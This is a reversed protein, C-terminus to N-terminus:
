AAKPSWCTPCLIAMNDSNHPARWGDKRALMRADSALRVRGQSHLHVRGCGTGECVAVYLREIAM